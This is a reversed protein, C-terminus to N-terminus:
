GAARPRFEFKVEFPEGTMEKWTQRQADTLVALAKELAEKSLARMKQFAAQFDGGGGPAPRNARMQETLADHISKIKDKQSDSLRLKAQVEADALAEVGRQQLEIQEFRKLQVPSLHEHAAKKVEAAFTKGMEQMKERRQDQSLSQLGEFGEEFM